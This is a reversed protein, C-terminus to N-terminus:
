QPFDIAYQNKYEEDHIAKDVKAELKKSKQLAKKRADSYQPAEFFEKQATRMEKVLQYFENM